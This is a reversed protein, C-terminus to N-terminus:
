LASILKGTLFKLLRERALFGIKKKGQTGISENRLGHSKEAYL